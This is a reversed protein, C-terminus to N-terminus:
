RVRHSAFIERRGESSWSSVFGPTIQLIRHPQGVAVDVAAAIVAVLEPTIEDSGGPTVSKVSVVEQEPKAAERAAERAAKAASANQMVAVVKSALSVLIALGSLCAFVILMGVIQTGFPDPETAASALISTLM